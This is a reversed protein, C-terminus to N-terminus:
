ANDESDTDFIEGGDEDSASELEEDPPVDEPGNVEIGDDGEAMIVGSGMEDENDNEVDPPLLPHLQNHLLHVEEHLHDNYEEAAALQQELEVQRARLANEENWAENWQNLVHILMHEYNRHAVTLRQVELIEQDREHTVQELRHQAASREATVRALEARLREAEIPEPRPERPALRHHPARGGTSKRATLKMRAMQLLFNCRLPLIM